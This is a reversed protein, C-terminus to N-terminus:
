IKKFGCYKHLVKPILIEGKENQFNEVIAVLVRPSAVCTSNLTHVYDKEKGKKYMINSRVAQYSTCNSCSGVERFAKQVPMWVEVDYTKAPVMGFEGTCLIVTRFHLKLSEFFEEINKRLEEHLEWSEEPKCIIIQEVKTFQKVRFIGKTDKGHAGAEKRYCPSYGVLKIPLTKEDLVENSFQATLPHESTSIMFLDEGEIKFLANEFTEIDVVGDYAKHSIMHPMTIFKYGKKTMFDIAYKMIAFELLALKGKLFYFRSGSLKAARELDILDREVLLDVHSKPKFKLNPKEGFKKVIKNDAENKGVPVSEHVINPLRKLLYTIRGLLEQLKKDSEAIKEPLNKAKELINKVNKGEKKAQNIEKSLLNRKQRLMDNEQKLKKVKEALKLIEDVIEPRLNKKELNTKVLESNERVFKLSLM